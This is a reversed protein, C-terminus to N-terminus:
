MPNNEWCSIFLPPSPVLFRARWCDLCCHVVVTGLVQRESFLYCQLGDMKGSGPWVEYFRQNIMISRCNFCIGAFKGERKHMRSWAVHNDRVYHSILPPYLETLIAVSKEIYGFVHSMLTPPLQRAKNIVVCLKGPRHLCVSMFLYLCTFYLLRAHLCM